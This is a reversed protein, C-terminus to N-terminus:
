GKPKAGISMLSLLFTPNDFRSARVHECSGVSIGRPNNHFSKGKLEILRETRGMHVDLFPHRWARSSSLSLVAKTDPANGCLPPEIVNLTPM